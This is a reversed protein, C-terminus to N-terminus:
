RLETAGTSVGLWLTRPAGREPFMGVGGFTVDFPAQSIPAAIADVIAAARDAAVEGLFVLTLHIHDPRVLRLSGLEGRATLRKQELAIAARAADDLDVAVFLRM